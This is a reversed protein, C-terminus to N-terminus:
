SPPVLVDRVTRGVLQAAPWGFTREAAPNVEIIRGEIDATVIADLSTHFVATRRARAEAERADLLTRRGAKGGQRAAAALFERWHELVAQPYGRMALARFRQRDPELTAVLAQDARFVALGLDLTADLAENVTSAAALAVSLQQLHALRLALTDEGMPEAGPER